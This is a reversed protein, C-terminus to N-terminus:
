ILAQEKPDKHQSKVYTLYHYFFYWQENITGVIKSFFKRNVLVTKWM